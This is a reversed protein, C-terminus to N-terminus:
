KVEEFVEEFITDLCGYLSDIGKVLYNGKPVGIIKGRYKIKLMPREKASYDVKIKDIGLEDVFMSIEDINEATDIFKIAEVIPMKKRFKKIM